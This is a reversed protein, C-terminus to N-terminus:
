DMSFHKNGYFTSLHLPTVDNQDKANVDLHKEVLIKVIDEKGSFLNCM